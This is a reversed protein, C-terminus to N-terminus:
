ISFPRRFIEREKGVEMDLVVGWEELQQKLDERKNELEFTYGELETILVRLEGTYGEGEKIDENIDEVKEDMSNLINGEGEAGKRLKSLRARYNELKKAEGKKREIESETRRSMINLKSLYSMGESIRNYIGKLTRNGEEKLHQYDDEKKIKKLSNKIADYKELFQAYERCKEKIDSLDESQHNRKM